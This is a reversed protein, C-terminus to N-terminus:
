RDLPQYKVLSSWVQGLRRREDPEYSNISGASASEGFQNEVAQCGPNLSAPRQLIFADIFAGPAFLKPLATKSVDKDVDPVNSGIDANILINYTIESGAPSSRRLTRTDRSCTCGIRTFPGSIYDAQRSGDGTKITGSGQWFTFLHTSKLFFWVKGFEGDYEFEETDIGPRKIKLVDLFAERLKDNRENGDRKYVLVYDIHPLRTEEWRFPTRSAAANVAESELVPNSESNHQTHELMLKLIGAM